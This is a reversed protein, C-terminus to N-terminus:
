NYRKSYVKWMMLGEFWYFDSFNLILLLYKCWDFRSKFSVSITEAYFYKNSITVPNKGFKKIKRITM